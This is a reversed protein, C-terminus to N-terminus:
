ARVFSRPDGTMRRRWGDCRYPNEMCVLRRSPSDRSARTQAPGGLLFVLSVPTALKHLHERMAAARRM